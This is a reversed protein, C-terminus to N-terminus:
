PLIKLEVRRNQAKGEPKANDALPQKPGYGKASLMAAKAGKEVLYKMVTEARKQSLQENARPNGSNDTHGGVEIKLEPYKKLTSAADDLIPFSAQTLVASGTEFNVGKLNINETKACGVQNVPTNAATDPCLDNDDAVGDNDGDAIADCGKEDVKVGAATTLCQDKDDSVGDKDGDPPPLDCGKEDVKM